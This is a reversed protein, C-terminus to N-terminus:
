FLAIVQDSWIMEKHTQELMKTLFHRKEDRASENTPDAKLSAHARLAGNMYSLMEKSPYHLYLKIQRRILEPWESVPKDALDELPYYIGNIEFADVPVGAWDVKIATLKHVKPM